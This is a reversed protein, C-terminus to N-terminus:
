KNNVVLKLKPRKKEMYFGQELEEEFKEVDKNKNSRVANIYLAYILLSYAAFTFLGLFLALYHVLEM